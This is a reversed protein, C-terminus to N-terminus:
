MHIQSRSTRPSQVAVSISMNVRRRDIASAFTKIGMFGHFHYSMRIHSCGGALKTENFTRKRCFNFLILM